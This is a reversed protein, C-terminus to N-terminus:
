RTSLISNLTVAGPWLPGPHSPLSTTSRMECLELMVPVEGDSQKTDYGHCDNQSDPLISGQLFPLSPHCWLKWIILVPTYGHSVTKYSLCFEFNHIYEYNITETHVFRRRIPQDKIISELLIHQFTKLM